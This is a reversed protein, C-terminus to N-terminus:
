GYWYNMCVCVSCVVYSCVGCKLHVLMVCVECVGFLLMCEYVCLAVCTLMYGGSVSVGGCVVCTHLQAEAQRM